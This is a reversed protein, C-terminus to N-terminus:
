IYFCLHKLHPFPPAGNKGAVSNKKKKGLSKIQVKMQIRRVGWPKRDHVCILLNALVQAARRRPCNNKSAAIM